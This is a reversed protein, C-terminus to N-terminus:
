VGAGASTARPERTAGPLLLGGRTYRGAVRSIVFLRDGVRREVSAGLAPLAVPYGQVQLLSAQFAGLGIGAGLSWLPPPNEPIGPPNDQGRAAAPLLLASGIVPAVVPPSTQPTLQPM